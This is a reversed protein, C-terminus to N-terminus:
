FRVRIPNGTSIASYSGGNHVVKVDVVDGRKYETVPTLDFRLEISAGGSESTVFKYTASASDYVSSKFTTVRTESEDISVSQSSTALGIVNFDKGNLTSPINYDNLKPFQEHNMYGGGMSDKPIFISVGLEPSIKNDIIEPTGTVGHILVYGEGGDMFSVKWLGCMRTMVYAIDNYTFYTINPNGMPDVRYFRNDNAASLCTYFDGHRSLEGVVSNSDSWEFGDGTSDDEGSTISGDEGMILPMGNAGLYPLGDPNVLMGNANVIVQNKDETTEDGVLDGDNSSDVEPDLWCGSMLLSMVLVSLGVKANTRM